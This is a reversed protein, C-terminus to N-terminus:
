IPLGAENCRQRAPISRRLARCAAFTPAAVNAQNFPVLAFVTISHKRHILLNQVPGCSARQHRAAQDPFASTSEPHLRGHGLSDV